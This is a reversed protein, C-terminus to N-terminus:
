AGGGPEAQARPTIAVFIAEEPGEFREVVLRAVQADDFFVAGKIGDLVAKAINDLDIKPLGPQLVVQIEVAFDGFRPRWARFDVRFFQDLTQKYVRAQSTVESLRLHLTEGARAWRVRRGGSWALESPDM